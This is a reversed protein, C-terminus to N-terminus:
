FDLGFLFNFRCIAARLAARTEPTQQKRALIVIAELGIESESLGDRLVTGRAAKLREQPSSVPRPRIEAM